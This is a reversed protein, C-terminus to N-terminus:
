QSLQDMVGYNFQIPDWKKIITQNQVLQYKPFSGETIEAFAKAEIVVLEFDIQNERFFTDIKNNYSVAIIKPFKTSNQQAAKLKLAGEKCHLCNYSLYALLVTDTTEINIKNSLNEEIFAQNEKLQSPFVTNITFPIIFCVLSAYKLWDHKKSHFILIFALAFLFGIFLRSFIAVFGWTFPFLSLLKYEFHEIPYLHFPVLLKVGFFILLGAVVIKFLAKM